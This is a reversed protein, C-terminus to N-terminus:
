TNSTPDLERAFVITLDDVAAAIEEPEGRDLGHLLFALTPEIHEPVVTIGHERLVDPALFLELPAALEDVVREVLRSDLRDILMRCARVFVEPGRAADALTGTARGGNVAAVRAVGGLLQVRDRMDEWGWLTVTTSANRSIEVLRAHALRAIAERVPTRSVGMSAALDDINLRSGPRVEGTVISSLLRDHVTEALLPKTITGLLPPPPTM